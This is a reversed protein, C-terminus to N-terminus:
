AAVGDDRDADKGAQLKALMEDLYTQAGMRLAHALTLPVQGEAAAREVKAELEKKEEETFRLVYTATRLPKSTSEM